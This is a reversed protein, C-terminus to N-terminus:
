KVIKKFIYFSICLFIGIFLGTLFGISPGIIASFIPYETGLRPSWWWITNDQLLVYYTGSTGMGKFVYVFTCEIIKGPVEKTPLKINEQRPCNGTENIPLSQNEHANGPVNETEVWQNCSTDGYCHEWFYLKKDAGQAWITYVNADIIESFNISGELKEWSTDIPPYDIRHGIRFGIIIGLVAPLSLLTLAIFINLVIGNSKQNKM